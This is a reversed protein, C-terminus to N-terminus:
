CILSKKKVKGAELLDCLRDIGMAKVEVDKPDTLLHQAAHLKSNRM